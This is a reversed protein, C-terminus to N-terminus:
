HNTNVPRLSACFDCFIYDVAQHKKHRQAAPSLNLVLNLRKNLTIMDGHTGELIWVFTGRCKRREVGSKLAAPAQIKFVSKRDKGKKRTQRRDRKAGQQEPEAVVRRANLPRNIQNENNDPEANNRTQFL